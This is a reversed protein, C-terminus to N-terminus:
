WCVTTMNGLRVTFLPAVLTQIDAEQDIVWVTHQFGDETVVDYVPEGARVRDVIADIAQEARYTLFVPEANANQDTVHRTRDDEKDKRTYEHKKILDQEYEKVSVLGVIGAQVHDGMRQQYVYLCPKPEQLLTGDKIFGYLNEVGKAYVADAHIDVDAALDIEPRGVHLFSHPKGQALARAEETNIVDYPLSAVEAALEPKPRYAQFPKLKSM